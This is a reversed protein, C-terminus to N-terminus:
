KRSIRSVVILIMGLLFTFAGWILGSLCFRSFVNTLAPSIVGALDAPMRLALQSTLWPTLNTSRVVMLVVAIGSAIVGALGLPLGMGLFSYRASRGLILWILGSLGLTLWPMWPWIRAALRIFQVRHSATEAQAVDLTLNPPIQGSLQQLGSVVIQLMFPQLAEPPRCFPLNAASNGAAAALGLEVLNAASCENWSALIIGAIPQLADGNLRQSIGTLDLTITFTDTKNMLFDQAQRAIVASQIATWDPPALLALIADYDERDLSGLFNGGQLQITGNLIWGAVLDPLQASLDSSLIEQTVADPTLLYRHAPFYLAAPIAAGLLMVGILIAM